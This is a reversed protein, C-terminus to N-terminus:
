LQNESVINNFGGLYRPMRDSKKFDKKRIDKYEQHFINWSADERKQNTAIGGHVQHFTGEGLLTYFESSPLALARNYTDLNVLGGGLSTFKEDYGGLEEWMKKTMFLANTEAIPKFWGNSSSGALVSINFLEYGNKKWNVSALLKDEIEQTYGYEVSKMQVVHGLHFALTSVLPRKSIKSAQLVYKLIGPSAMRAGDIMVGIIHLREAGLGM